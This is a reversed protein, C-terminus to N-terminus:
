PTGAAPANIWRLVADLAPDKGASYDAFTLEAAIHPQVWTRDDTSDMIQWYRSSCSVRTKSHPLVFWTSEGVFQPRSGTPEGVFIPSLHREMLNVTNQAASFTNRGILVWLHGKRNVRENKILAHILPRTLFTNGGGNFRMDIILHEASTSDILGFLESVVHQFNSGPPNQVAGFWFYVAKHEALHEVRLRKDPDKLFLPRTTGPLDHFYTFAPNLLGGHGQVPFSAAEVRVAEEKGERTRLTLTAGAEDPALNLAKLIPPASLMAPGQALYGMENDVSMYPRAANLADAYDMPGVKLVKAGILHKYAASAGIVHPGDKFVFIDLPLARREEGEPFLRSATHGDGVRATIQRLRARVQTDPLSPLDRKLREIESLFQEKPINAYLDWHMQKMRRAYFDLDWAWGADRTPAPPQPLGKTLGTLAAFRPDARLSDLDTDSQITEQDAFRADLARELFRLADDTHGMLAHACATNYLNTPRQYGLEIAKAYAKLAEAYQKNAHLNFGWQSWASGDYPNQEVMKAYLAAAEASQNDRQLAAGRESDVWPQAFAPSAALAALVLLVSPRAHARPM